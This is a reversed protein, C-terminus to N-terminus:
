LPKKCTDISSSSSNSTMCEVSIIQRYFFVYTFFISGEMNEEYRPFNKGSGAFFLPSFAPFKSVINSTTFVLVSNQFIDWSKQLLGEISSIKCPLSISTLIFDSMTLSPKEKM